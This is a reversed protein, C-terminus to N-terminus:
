GVAKQLTRLVAGKGAIMEKFYEEIKPALGCKCLDVAFLKKNSLIPKLKDGVSSPDGFKIDGVIAKLEDSMPDPSLEFIEGSDSVGLLYRCWGAITLPIYTLNMVNLEPHSLYAKITEGFRIIIKQSTDSAIRQPTDPIYRNPLRKEIVENIFEGPDLVKPDTVVPMGEGYGIKEILKKLVPNSVEDAILKYELICGFIALCTHLPNLCITVKMREAKEVTERDTFIVGAKELPMRGAPFNDEIILYQPVEANIFPAIYTHKKTTIIETDAFGLAELKSKVTDSPRPTIKDIMSWPYAVASPNKLYDLFQREVLGNRMWKEAITFMSSQLKEGNHSCNDMSVFSIPFAGALFREHALMLIKSIINTAKEPGNEMDRMVGPFINGNMDSLAYGKETITFSAIQLSKKRFVAKLKEWDEARSPDGVLGDAISAVVKKQLSGDLNMLVVLGLNNHDRYIRDIIEEDYTEAAIIGTKALGNDLLNQQLVAIFGRFINGAGFHVWTPNKETESIMEEVNFKPLEIGASAWEASKALSKRNLNLM